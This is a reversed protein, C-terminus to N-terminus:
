REIRLTLAEPEPVVLEDPAATLPPEGIRQLRLGPVGDVLAALERYAVQFDVFAADVRQQDLEGAGRATRQAAILANRCKGLARAVAKERGPNPNAAFHLRMHEEIQDLILMGDTVAAVITPLASALAACATTSALLLAFLLRRM